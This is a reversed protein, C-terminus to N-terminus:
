RGNAVAAECKASHRRRHEHYAAVANERSLKADRVLEELSRIGETPHQMRASDLRAIARLQRTIAGSAYELLRRCEECEAESNM